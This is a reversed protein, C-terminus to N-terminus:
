TLRPLLLQSATILSWGAKLDSFYSAIPRGAQKTEMAKHSLDYIISKNAGKVIANEMVWKDYTVVDSAPEPITGSLYGM